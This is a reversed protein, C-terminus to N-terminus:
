FDSNDSEERIFVGVNGEADSSPVFLADDDVEDDEDGEDSSYDTAHVIGNKKLQLTRHTRVVKEMKRWDTENWDWKSAPGRADEWSMTRPVAQILHFDLLELKPFFTPQALAALLADHPLLPTYHFHLIKLGHSVSPLHQSRTPLISAFVEPTIGQGALELDRLHTLPSLLTAASDIPSLLALELFSLTSSFSPTRENTGFIACLPNSSGPSSTFTLEGLVLKELDSSRSGGVLGLLWELEATGGIESSVLHLQRLRFNPHPLGTPLTIKIRWLDLTTLSNWATLSPVFPSLWGSHESILQLGNTLTPVALVFSSIRLGSLERELEDRLIQEGEEDALGEEKTGVRTDLELSNVSGTQRLVDIVLQTVESQPLNTRPVVSTAPNEVALAADYLIDQARVKLTRVHLGVGTAKGESSALIQKLQEGNGRLDGVALTLKQFLHRRAFPALVPSVKLIKSLQRRKGKQNKELALLWSIILDIIESSLSLLRSPQHLRTSKRTAQATPM